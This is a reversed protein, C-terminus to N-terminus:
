HIDKQSFSKQVWYYSKQTEAASVQQKVSNQQGGKQLCLRKWPFNTTQFKEISCDLTEPSVDIPFLSLDKIEHWQPVELRM